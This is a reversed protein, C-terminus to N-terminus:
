KGGISMAKIYVDPCTISSVTTLENSDLAKVDKMMKLLSGSLTILSLPEAIKGDRIMFGEAQCSFNGSNANMGTGLGAIETIYVGEKIPSIMEDFSQKGKKVFINSYGIGIKDGEWQGNGTSEVGDKKAAERNYLYTELVGRKLIDKNQAAVGEDDFYSFFINKTLPKEAISVKSSAIKQHLKGGLFSSKKQVDEASAASVYYEILDSFVDNSIVTPYSGSTCQVGGFKSTARTAARKVFAKVDLKSIDDGSAIDFGTKKEGGKEAMASAYVVFYNGKQKLNVGRSNHFESVSESDSYHVGEVENIGPEAAIGDEIEHLLAIKKEVPTNALAVSYVNKKHYKESGAFLEAKESKENISASSIIGEILYEFTDSGIKESRCSGFKGNYIGCAIVSQSSSVKYSDIDKHFLGISLNNSKSIQIQSESLGKAKALDFFKQFNM